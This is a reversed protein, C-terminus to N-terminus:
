LGFEKAVEEPTVLTIHDRTLWKDAEAQTVLNIGKTVKGVETWVVNKTSKVAVTKDSKKAAPTPKSKLIVRTTTSGLAGDGVSGLAQKEVVEEEPPLVVAPEVVTAEVVPQEIVPEQIAPAEVVPTTEVAPESNEPSFPKNFEFNNEM